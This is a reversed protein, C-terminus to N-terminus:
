DVLVIDGNIDFEEHKMPDGIPVRTEDIVENLLGVIQQRIAFRLKEMQEDNYLRRGNKGSVTLNIQINM